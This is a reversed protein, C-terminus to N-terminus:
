EQKQQHSQKVGDIERTKQKIELEVQQKLLDRESESEKKSFELEQILSDM